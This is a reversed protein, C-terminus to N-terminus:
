SRISGTRARIWSVVSASCEGSPCGSSRASAVPRSSTSSLVTCFYGELGGPILVDIFRLETDRLELVYAMARSTEVSLRRRGGAGPTRGLTRRTNRCACDVTRGRELTPASAFRAPTTSAPTRRCRATGRHHSRSIKHLTGLRALPAAVGAGPHIVYPRMSRALFSPHSAEPQPFTM